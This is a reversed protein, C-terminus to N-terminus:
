VGEGQSSMAVAPIKEIVVAGRKATDSSSYVLHARAKPQRFLHEAALAILAPSTASGLDGYCDAPHETKVAEAFASKNRLYAVGYEKAWINEGNMSSYISHISAEFHNVLAKKFAKDLGDGRYPEDSEMHGAETAIGPVNVAIIHGNRVMALDARYTLLLFAAGEGPAFGDKNSKTLLRDKKGLPALRSYDRHSDSGGILVYDNVSNGLYQFAFYIAEMGAARGSHMTRYHAVSVWPQCNSEMNKAYPSLGGTDDQGEPLALLLPIPKQVACQACAERIALIAMKLVRDHRDNHRNGGSIEANIEDFIIDPVSAMTVPEDNEGYYSNSIQYGSKGARVAAATSATDFGVPTIMGMGAIYLKPTNSM